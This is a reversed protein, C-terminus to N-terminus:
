NKKLKVKKKVGNKPMGIADSGRDLKFSKPTPKSGSNWVTLLYVQNGNPTSGYKEITAKIQAVPNGQVDLTVDSTVFQTCEPYDDFIGDFDSAIRQM